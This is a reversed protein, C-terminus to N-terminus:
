GVTQSLQFLQLNIQAVIENPHGNSQESLAHLKKRFRRIEQKFREFNESSIAVTLASFERREANQNKVAEAALGSMEQHFNVVFLSAVEDPTALIAEKRKLHGSSTQSIMGLKKLEKLAAKVERLPVKPFLIQSLWNATKRKPLKLRLAELIAVYYWRSFLHYQAATIEKRRSTTKQTYLEEFYREKEEHDKAQNFRVLKEFYLAEEPNLKFGQVIKAVGSVGLNRKGDMVLKLFGASQIGALRNFYRFSFHSNQKKLTQFRDRLFKRYDLYDYLKSKM